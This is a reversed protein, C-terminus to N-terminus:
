VVREIGLVEMMKILLPAQETPFVLHHNGLSKNKLLQTQDKTTSFEIQTRCAFGHSPRDTIKGELLMYRDMKDNLRFAAVKEAEINGRIATGLGTEFHTTVDFDTLMNLPATCHAMLISGEKIEAINAQWPIQNTLSRIIIKGIMSVMDGECAAVKNQANFVALPLCATVEDRKVMSFCEVSIASLQHMEIGKKLLNYVKSTEELDKRQQNPFYKFFEESINENKHSGLESWPLRLIEIGFKEKVNKDQVDSIILWDSVEGILAAKETQLKQLASFISQINQFERLANEAFVDIVSVKKSNARLYAAIEMTAAYSNDQRHCLLIVFNYDLSLNISHKESGGSAVFIIDGKDNNWEFAKDKLFDSLIQTSRTKLEKNDNDYSIYAIQFNVM